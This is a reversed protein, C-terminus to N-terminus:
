AEPPIVPRVERPPAQIERCEEDEGWKQADKQVQWGTQGGQCTGQEQAPDGHWSDHRNRLIRQIGHRTGIAFAGPCQAGRAPLRDPTHGQGGRAGAHQGGDHEAHSAGDAFGHGHHHDGAICRHQRQFKAAEEGGDAGHGGGDGRFHTFDGVAAGM